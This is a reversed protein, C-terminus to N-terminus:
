KATVLIYILLGAAFVAVIVLGGLFDETLQKRTPKYWHDRLSM